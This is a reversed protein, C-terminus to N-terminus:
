FNFFRYVSVSSVRQILNCVELSPWFSAAWTTSFFWFNPFFWENGLCHSFFSVSFLTEMVPVIVNLLQTDDPGAESITNLRKETMEPSLALSSFGCCLPRQWRQAMPCSVLLFGALSHFYVRQLSLCWFWKEKNQLKEQTVNKCLVEM